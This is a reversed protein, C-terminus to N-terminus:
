PKRESADDLEGLLQAVRQRLERNRRRLRTLEDRVVAPLSHEAEALAAMLAAKQARQRRLYEAYGPDGSM